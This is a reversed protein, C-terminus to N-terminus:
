IGNTGTERDTGEARLLALGATVCGLALTATGILELPYSSILGGVAWSITGGAVLKSGAVFWKVPSPWASRAKQRGEWLFLLSPVTEAIIKFDLQLSWKRAYFTDLVVRNTRGAEVKWLGTMGPRCALYSGANAGFRELGEDTVPRPGVISMDGKLVNFLQPLEDISTKRLLAGVVSIRPDNRLGRHAVWEARASPDSELFQRLREPADMVMTRFKLCQFHKGNFGVRRHRFIPPGPSDIAVAIYAVLLIPALLVIATLALVVDVVRKVPMGVPAVWGTIPTTASQSLDITDAFWRM